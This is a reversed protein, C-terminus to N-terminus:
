QGYYRRGFQLALDLRVERSLGKDADVLGLSQIINTRIEGFIEALMENQDAPDKLNRARQLRMSYKEQLVDSFEYIRFIADLNNSLSEYLERVEEGRSRIRSALDSSLRGLKKPEKPLYKKLSPNYEM